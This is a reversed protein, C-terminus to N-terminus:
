TTLEYFLDHVWLKEDKSEWLKRGGINHKYELLLYHGGQEDEIKKLFHCRLYFDV